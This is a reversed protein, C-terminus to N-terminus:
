HNIRWQCAANRGCPTGGPRIGLLMRNWNRRLENRQTENAEDANLMAAANRHGRSLTHNAVSTSCTHTPTHTHKGEHMIWNSDVSRARLPHRRIFNTTLHPLRFSIGTALKGFSQTLKQPKQKKKRKM